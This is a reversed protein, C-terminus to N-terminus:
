LREVIMQIQKRHISQHQGLTWVWGEANIKGFWPHSVKHHNSHTNELAKLKAIVEGSTKKFDEIMKDRTTVDEQKPKVKAVDTDVSLNKGQSLEIAIMSMGRMTIMLHDITLAVSWFRSSDEMGKLRPILIRTQFQKEDLKQCIEVIKQTESGVRQLNGVWNSKRLKSPFYIYKLFFNELWPLGAGPPALKPFQLKDM